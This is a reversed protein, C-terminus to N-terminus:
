IAPPPLLRSPARRVPAAPSEVGPAAATPAKAAPAPKAAPRPAAPKSGRHGAEAASVQPARLAPSAAEHETPIAPPPLLRSPRVPAQRSRGEISTAGPPPEAPPNDAPPQIGNRPQPAVPPDDEVPEVIEGPPAPPLPADADLGHPVGPELARQGYPGHSFPPPATYGYNMRRAASREHARKAADIYAKRPWPGESLFVGNYDLLSGKEFHINKIALVHDVVSRYYAIDAEALRRQADLLFEIPVPEEPTQRDYKNEMLVLHREAALRRNFNTRIATYARDLEAVAAGVDFSVELEQDSLLARERTLQLQANRVASMAQRYGIPVQLQLGLQWEQFNGDTLNNFANDYTPEDSDPNLLHDGLGRWRYLAVGDLRPMLYNRAAILELERRQVLWKQRRLEVRRVLAEALSQDWDFCLKCVPPEDSPRILRCDNLPLGMLFRLKRESAYVGGRGQFLGGGTGLRTQTADLATGMLADEVQNQAFFFQERARAERDAEGGRGEETFLAYVARWTSLSRDRAARKADLDRYAFYLDWYANEVDSVLTRVGDEFDALSIDTNIRAVLVGNPALFDHAANPGAIRNFHVGSGQLFPQRIEAEFNTEWVSPFALQGPGNNSADYLTNNRVAFQAGTAARKAIQAQFTGRDQQFEFPRGPGGSGFPGGTFNNLPRDNKEWFISSTFSADFESLAGEVGFRPDSEQIAPDYITRISQPAGVVRGGIDRMVESNALAVQVAEQLPLPWYDAPMGDHLIRPPLTTIASPPPPQDAEPFEIQTAQDKYYRLQGDDRFFRYEKGGQCGGLFAVIAALALIARKSEM